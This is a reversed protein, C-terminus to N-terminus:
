RKKKHFIILFSLLILLFCIGGILPAVYSPLEEKVTIDTTPELITKSAVYAEEKTVELTYTSEVKGERSLELYVINEGVELNENGIINVSIDEDVDYDIELNNINDEIFVTYTLNNTEFAPSMEGNLIELNHLM